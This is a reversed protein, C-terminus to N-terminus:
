NSHTAAAKQSDLMQNQCSTYGIHLTGVLGATTMTGLDVTETHSHSSGVAALNKGAATGLGCPETQKLMLQECSSRRSYDSLAFRSDM